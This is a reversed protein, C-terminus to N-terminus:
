KYVWSALDRNYRFEEAQLKTEAHHIVLPVDMEHLSGHSCYEPPLAEQEADLEGFVTDKDGLVVLDGIRSGMLHYRKVAEGPTLVM